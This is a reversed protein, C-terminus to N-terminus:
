NYITSSTINEVQALGVVDEFVEYSDSVSRLCLVLQEKNSTDRAEFALLAFWKQSMVDHLLSRLAKHAM